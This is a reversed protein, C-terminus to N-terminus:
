QGTLLSALRHWDDPHRFFYLGIAVVAITIWESPELRDRKVRKFFAM